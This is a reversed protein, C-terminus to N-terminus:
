RRAKRRRSANVWRSPQRGSRRQARAGQRQAQRVAKKLAAYGLETTCVPTYDKPHSFLVGWSNGLHEHFRITGETSEATFDPAISGIHLGM